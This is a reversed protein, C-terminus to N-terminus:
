ISAGEASTIKQLAKKSGETSKALDVVFNIADVDRSIADKLSLIEDINLKNLEEDNNKNFFKKFNEQAHYDFGPLNLKLAYWKHFQHIMYYADVPLDRMVFMPETKLKFKLGSGSLISIVASLYLATLGKKEYILGEEELILGLLVNAYPIKYVSTGKKEIFNLLKQPNNQAQKLINKLEFDVRARNRETENSLTLCYDKSFSRKTTSSSYVKKLNRELKKTLVKEQLSLIWYLIVRIYNM